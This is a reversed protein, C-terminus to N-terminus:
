RRPPPLFRKLKGSGPRDLATVETLTVLPRVLGVGALAHELKGVVFQIAAGDERQHVQYEIIASHQRLVSRFVHPHICLGDPYVSVDDLRGQPHAIRQFVSGCPCRGVFVTVEDTVQYRILPQFRHYLDYGM